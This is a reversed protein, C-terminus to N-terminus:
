FLSTQYSYCRVTASQLYIYNIKAIVLQLPFNFKWIIKTDCHIRAPNKEEDFIRITSCCIPSKISLVFCLFITYSINLMKFIQNLFVNHLRSGPICVDVGIRTQWDKKGKEWKNYGNGKKRWRKKFSSKERTIKSIRFYMQTHPLTHTLTHMWTCKVNLDM